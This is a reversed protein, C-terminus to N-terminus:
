EGTKDGQELSTLKKYITALVVQIEQPWDDYEFSPLLYETKLAEIFDDGLAQRMMAPFRIQVEGISPALGIYMTKADLAPVTFDGAFVQIRSSLGFEDRLAHTFSVIFKRQEKDLTNTEDYVVGERNLVEVVRENNKMFAWIVLAFILVLALSRIIREKASNGHVRPIGIRM